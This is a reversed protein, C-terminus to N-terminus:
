RAVVLAVIVAAAAYVLYVRLLGGQVVRLRRSIRQVVTAFNRAADRDVLAPLLEGAILRVPNVLAAPTYGPRRTPSGCSWTPVTRVRRARAYAISAIAGAVPLIALTLPLTPLTGVDIPASGLSGVVHTLPQLLLSPALGTVLVIAALALLAISAIDIREVALRRTSRGAGLFTGAVLKVAAVAALGGSLALAAIAAIAIGSLLPAHSQVAMAFARFALWESAFGNTPPLAAAAASALVVAITSLPLFRALAGLYELDTTGATQSITGAGLFLASKFFGHNIAHLLAALLALAAVANLGYTRALLAVGIATVVIGVNEISSYALLRKIDSELAALLAGAVASVGGAAAVIASWSAPVPAALIATVLLLGYIAVNLMVGSLLASANAPAAPHARPLWFHLPVLGAKSGFGILALAVVATRTTPSLLSAARAIDDFAFSSASTGLLILAVTIAITGVQSVSGYSFLARRVSPLRHNTGVLFLSVLAMLEWSFLFSAVSRAVLVSAMLLAFLALKVGDWPAGRRITWLAVAIAIIGLAVLFPRALDACGYDIALSPVIPTGVTVNPFGLIGTTGIAVGAVALPLAGFVRATM